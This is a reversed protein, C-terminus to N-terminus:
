DCQPKTWLAARAGAALGFPFYHGVIAGCRNVRVAVRDVNTPPLPTETFGNPAITFAVAPFGTYWGVSRGQSSIGYLAHPLPITQALTARFGRETTGVTYAGVMVQSGNIGTIRAHVTGNPMALAILGPDGWLVADSTSLPEDLTGVPTHAAIDYLDGTRGATYAPSWTNQPVALWVMPSGACAGVIEGADDIANAHMSGNCYFNLLPEIAQGPVRRWARTSGNSATSTGVIVNDNNIATVVNGVDGGLPAIDEITGDPARVFGHPAGAITHTGVIWGHTNIDTARSALGGSIDTLTYGLYTPPQSPGTVIDRRASANPALPATTRDPADCAATTLCAAVLLISARM